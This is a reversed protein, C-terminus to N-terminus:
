DAVASRNSPTDDERLASDARMKQFMAQRCANDLECLERNQNLRAFAHRAADALQEYSQWELTSHFIEDRMISESMAIDKTPAPIVERIFARLCNSRSPKM